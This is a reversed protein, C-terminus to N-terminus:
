TFVPTDEINRTGLPLLCPHQDPFEQAMYSEAAQHWNHWTLDQPTHDTATKLLSFTFAGNMPGDLATEEPRCATLFLANLDNSRPADLTTRPQTEFVRAQRTIFAPAARVKPRLPHYPLDREMGGSHCSDLVIILNVGPDFRSLWSHLTTDPLQGDYLCLTEQYGNFLWPGSRGGHGSFSLLLTDGPRTNKAFLKLAGNLSALTAQENLVARSTYGARAMLAAMATADAVCANLSGDWGSYTAPNVCNLGLHLSLNM